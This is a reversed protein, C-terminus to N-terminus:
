RAELSARVQAIYEARDIDTPVRQLDDLMAVLSRRAQISDSGWHWLEETTFQLMSEFTQVPASARVIGDCVAVRSIPTPRKAVRRLLDHIRDICQVATTPDNTGPSLAREAIDVLQRLGFAPDTRMSREPELRVLEAWDVDVDDGEDLSDSGWVQVLPEGECVYNGVPQVVRVICEHRGAIRGMADLDIDAVVGARPAPVTRQPPDPLHIDPPELVDGADPPYEEDITRRTEEAIREIISVVRISQSIHHIYKIFMVLSAAVLVFAVTVAISPVFAPDEGSAVRVAALAAFSYVFTAVFIGLAFQSVRDALFNRLARPSFQSSTLQLVLVTISFVLGVFTMMSSSITTLTDSANQPGGAYVWGPEGQLYRDLTILGIAAAIALAMCVIPIFWFGTRLREWWSRRWRASLELHGSRQRRM